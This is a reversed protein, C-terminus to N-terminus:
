LILATLSSTSIYALALAVVVSGAAVSGRTAGADETVEEDEGVASSCFTFLGPPPPPELM